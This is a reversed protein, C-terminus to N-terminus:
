WPRGPRQRPVGAVLPRGCDLSRPSVRPRSAWGQFVFMREVLKGRTSGGGTPLRRDQVGVEIREVRRNLLEQVRRQPVPGDCHAAAHHQCCRVFGPAVADAAPHWPPPGALKATIEKEDSAVEVTVLPEAVIDHGDEMVEGRSDLPHRDILSEEIHGSGDMEESCGGLDCSAMRRRTARHSRAGATPQRPASSAGRWLPTM